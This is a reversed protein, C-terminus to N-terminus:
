NAVAVSGDGDRRLDREEGRHCRRLAGCGDRWGVGLRPLDRSLGLRRENETTVSGEDTLYATLEARTDRKSRQRTVERVGEDGDLILTEILMITDVQDADGARDLSLEEALPATARARDSLLEDPVHV